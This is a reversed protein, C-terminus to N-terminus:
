KAGYSKIADGRFFMQEIQPASLVGEFLYFEDITGTLYLPGSDSEGRGLYNLSRSMANPYPMGKYKLWLGADLYLKWNGSPSMTWAAHRWINDNISLKLVNAFVGSPVGGASCILDIDGRANPSFAITDINTGNGFEFLMTNSGSGSFKFWFLISLGNSRTTFQPIKVYQSLSSQFTVAGSGKVVDTTSIILGNMLQADYEPGGYGLNKLTNQNTVSEVDFSYYLLASVPCSM